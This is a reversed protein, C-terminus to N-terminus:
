YNEVYDGDLTVCKEWRKKVKQLGGNYFDESQTSFWQEMEQNVDDTM